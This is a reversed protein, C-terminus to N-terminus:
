LPVNGGANRLRMCDGRVANYNFIQLMPETDKGM